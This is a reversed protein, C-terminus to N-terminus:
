KGLKLDLMVGVTRRAEPSTIQEYGPVVGPAPSRPDFFAPFIAQVFHTDLLNRAFVGVRWRGDGSGIGINAGLLGYARVVTRPDPVITYTDGRWVYNTSADFTLRDSLAHRYNAGLNFSWDPAGALPKGKLDQVSAGTTPNVYCGVGVIPSLAQGPNCAAIYSTYRAKAYTVGGTFSFSRTFRATWEAEFGKTDLGGANGLRFAAPTLSTDYVQAQFNSYKQYFGAINLTLRRDFLQTKLGAEFDHSTEPNIVLAEGVLNSFAPGKYGTSFTFYGMIDHSFKYQVVTHISINGHRTNAASNTRVPPTLALWGAIPELYFSTHVDDRTARGGFIFHLKDSVRLTGQGFAAYSKSAAGLHDRGGHTSLTTFGPPLVFPLLATPIGFLGTDVQTAATKANFYYLGLVYTLLGSSPSTLRIEQSFQHATDTEVNNDIWNTPTDDTIYVERDRLHQYSTVSTLTFDDLHYDITGTTSWVRIQNKPLVDDAVKENDPSFVIGYPANDAPVTSGAPAASRITFFNNTDHTKQYSAILYINLKDDPQWLLKGRMGQDTSNGLPSKTLENYAYGDRHQNHVSLRFAATDGLPINANVQALSQNESGYSAHGDVSLKGLEPRKTTITIVGASTNKGFLTGQPGRLVEVQDIDTLSNLGPDRPIGLVVGDIMIGVSKDLSYDFGQTGVGRIQFGAGNYTNYQVSPVLYQIDSLTRFASRDITEHSIATVAVPVDQLRESRREATVVIDPVGQKDVPAGVPSKASQAPAGAPIAIAALAVASSLGNMRGSKSM